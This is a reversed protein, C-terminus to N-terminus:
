AGRQLAAARDAMSKGILYGVIALIAMVVVGGGLVLRLNQQLAELYPPEKGLMVPVVVAGIVMMVVAAGLVLGSFAGVSADIEEVVTPAELVSVEETLTPEQTLGAVTGSPVASEVDIHELVEAGISTDDSERTLDLLGSGSGVGDLSIQEEVSPSIATKAMPDGAEIELDEDDFISIGESTIVTDDKGAPRPAEDAASLAVSDGAGTDAPTLAISDGAGSDAPTLEIESPGEAKQGGPRPPALADVQDAKYIRQGGDIYSMLKGQEVLVKLEEATINLREAADQESYYMKGM